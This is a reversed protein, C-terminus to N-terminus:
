WLKKVNLVFGKLLPEGSVQKPNDLIEIEANPRYVHFKKELPDILWGLAAGNEMYETMKNQLNRISDSLSRLEIVFDPCLPPFKEREDDSLKEWRENKIWALDPSRKAGNPLNFMTSSAFGVGSKDEKSWKGFEGTILFNRISDKGNHPKTIVIEGKGNLEFRVEPNERCMREFEEDSIKRFNFKMRAGNERLKTAIRM